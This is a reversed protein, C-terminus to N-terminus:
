RGHAFDKIMLKDVYRGATSTVDDRATGFNAVATAQLIKQSTTTTTLNPPNM